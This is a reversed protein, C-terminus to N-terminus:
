DGFEEAEEDTLPRIITRRGEELQRVEHAGPALQMPPLRFDPNEGSSTNALDSLWKLRAGKAWIVLFLVLAFLLIFFPDAHHIVLAVGFLALVALVIEVIRAM